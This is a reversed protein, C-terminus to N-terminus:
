EKKYDFAVLIEKAREMIKAWWPSDIFEHAFYNEDSFEEFEATFKRLIQHQKETLMFDKYNQIIDISTPFFYNCVEDFDDCEPGEGRIWIRQQYNEDSITRITDLLSSVIQERNIEM